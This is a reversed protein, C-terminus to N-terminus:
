PVAVERFVVFPEVVFVGGKVTAATIPLSTQMEGFAGQGPSLIKKKRADFVSVCTAWECRGFDNGSRGPRLGEM